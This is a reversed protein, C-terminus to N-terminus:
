RMRPPTTSSATAAAHGPDRGEGLVARDLRRPHQAHDRGRHPRGRGAGARHHVVGRLPAGGRVEDAARLARAPDGPRHHGRRLLHAGGLRRRLRANRAPGGRQPPLDRGPARPRAARQAGGPVHDRDRGPRGPLRLGQDHRLRAVGLLGRPQAGRQHRGAGRQQALAGPPGQLHDRGVRGERCRGTRRAPRRSRSRNRSRRAEAHPPSSDICNASARPEAAHARVM